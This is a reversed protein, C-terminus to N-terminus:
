KLGFHLLYTVLGWVVVALLLIGIIAGLLHDAIWLTLGANVLKNDTHLTQNLAARGAFALWIVGIIAAIAALGIIIGAIIDQKEM